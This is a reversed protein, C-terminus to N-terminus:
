NFLIDYSKEKKEVETAFNNATKVSSDPTGTPTDAITQTLNMLQEFMGIAKNVRSEYESIRSEFDAFKSEYSAFKETTTNEFANFKASMDEVVPASSGDASQIEMIVGNDGVVLKTGDLLEHEGVPAPLSNITVIGGVSMETIEIETGDKLKHKMPVVMEPTSPEPAPAPAVANPQNVLENFTLRIKELVEKANM